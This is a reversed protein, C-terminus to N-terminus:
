LLVTASYSFKGGTKDSITAKMEVIHKEKYQKFNSKLDVIINQPDRIPTICKESGKLFWIEKSKKKLGLHLHIHIIRLQAVIELGTLNSLHFGSDTPSTFFDTMEVIARLREHNTEVQKIKWREIQRGGNLYPSMLPQLNQLSVENWCQNQDKM